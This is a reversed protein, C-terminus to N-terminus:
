IKLEHIKGKFAVPMYLVSYEAHISLNFLRTSFDDHISKPAAKAHLFEPLFRPILIRDNKSRLCM